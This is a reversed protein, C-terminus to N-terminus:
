LMGAPLMKSNEANNICSSEFDNGNEKWWDEYSQIESPSKINDSNKLNKIAVEGVNKTGVYNQHMCNKVKGNWVYQHVFNLNKIKDLGQIGDVNYRLEIEANSKVIRGCKTKKRVICSNGKDSIIIHVPYNLHQIDTGSPTCGMSHHSHLHGIINKTIEPAADKETINAATASVEQEPIYYDLIEPIGDSNFNGLLWVAFEKGKQLDKIHQLEYWKQLDFAVVNVLEPCVECDEISESLEEGDTIGEFSILKEPATEAEIVGYEPFM